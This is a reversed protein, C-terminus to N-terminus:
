RLREPIEAALAADRPTGDGPEGKQEIDRILVHDDLHAPACLVKEAANAAGAAGGNLYGVALAEDTSPAATETRLSPPSAHIGCPACSLGEPPPNESCVHIRRATVLMRETRM